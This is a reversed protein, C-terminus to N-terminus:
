NFIRINDGSRQARYQLMPYKNPETTHQGSTIFYSNDDNECPCKAVVGDVTMRSCESPSHNPDSLEFAFYLDDTACYVVIGKVGGNIVISNGPFKLVNYEPLNLNLNMNVPPFSIFPNQTKEDDSKSCGFISITLILLLVLPKM